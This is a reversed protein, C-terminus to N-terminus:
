PTFTGSPITNEQTGLSENIYTVSVFTDAPEPRSFAVAQNDVVTRVFDQPHRTEYCGPRVETKCVVLGDWRKAVESAKRKKGCQDCIVNWDGLVLYNNSHYQGGSM